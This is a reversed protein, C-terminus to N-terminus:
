TQSKEKNLSTNSNIAFVVKYQILNEFIHKKKDVFIEYKPIVISDITMRLLMDFM